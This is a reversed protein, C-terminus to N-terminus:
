LKEVADADLTAASASIFEVVAKLQHLMTCKLLSSQAQPSFAIHDFLVVVVGFSIVVRHDIHPMHPM